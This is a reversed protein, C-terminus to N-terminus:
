FEDRSDELEPHSKLFESLRRYYETVLENRRACDESIEGKRSVISVVMLKGLRRFGHAPCSLNMDAEFEEASKVVFWPLARGNPGKPYCNCNALKERTAIHAVQQEVKALRMNLNNFLKRSM